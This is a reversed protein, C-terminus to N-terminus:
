GPAPPPPAEEAPDFFQCRTGAVEIAGRNTLRVEAGGALMRGDVLVENLEGLRALRYGDDHRTVIVATGGIAKLRTVARELSIVRGILPGSQVQLYAPLRDRMGVAGPPPRPRAPPPLPRALVPGPPEERAFALIHKGVLILDGDALMATDVRRGNHLLPYASDLATLRAGEGLPSVAAHRSAVALSDITIDCAPHRGIVATRGELRHVALLRGKFSLSLKLVPDAM